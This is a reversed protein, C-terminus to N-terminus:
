EHKEGDKIALYLVGRIENFLNLSSHEWEIYPQIMKLLDETARFKLFDSSGSNTGYTRSASFKEIRRTEVKFPPKNHEALLIRNQAELQAIRERLKKKTEWNKFFKM